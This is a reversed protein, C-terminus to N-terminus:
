TQQIFDCICNKKLKNTMANVHYICHSSLQGVGFNGVVLVKYLVESMGFNGSQSKELSESEAMM